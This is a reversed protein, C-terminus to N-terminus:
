VWIVLAVVNLCLLEVFLFFNTSGPGHDHLLCNLMYVIRVLDMMM